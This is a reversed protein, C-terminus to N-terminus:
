LVSVRGRENYDDPIPKRPSDFDKWFAQAPPDCKKPRACITGGSIEDLRAYDISAFLYPLWPEPRPLDGFVGLM